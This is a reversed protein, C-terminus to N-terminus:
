PINDIKLEVRRNLVHQKETCVNCNAILNTEGYGKGTLRVPDIGNSSLYTIVENARKDSLRLNYDANGRRDCYAMANLKLRPQDKLIVVIENLETKAERTLDYSNFYFYIKFAKGVQRDPLDTSPTIERKDSNEIIPLADVPQNALEDTRPELEVSKESIENPLAEIGTKDIVALTEGDKISVDKERYSDPHLRSTVQVPPITYEALIIPTETDLLALNNISPFSLKVYLFKGEKNNALEAM